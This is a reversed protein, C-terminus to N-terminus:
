GVAEVIAGRVLDEASLLGGAPPTSVPQCQEPPAELDQSTAPQAKSAFIEDQKPSPEPYETPKSEPAAPKIQVSHYHNVIQLAGLVASVDIQWHPGSDRSLLIAELYHEISALVASVRM